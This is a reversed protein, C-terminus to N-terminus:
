EGGRTGRGIGRTRYGEEKVGRKNEGEWKNMIVEGCM